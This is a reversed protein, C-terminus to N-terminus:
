INAALVQLGLIGTNHKYNSLPPPAFTSLSRVPGVMKSLTRQCIWDSTDWLAIISDSGGTALYKGTPQIEASLCSSTHGSLVFEQETSEDSGPIRLLPQFDPYSLIRATGNATTVFM